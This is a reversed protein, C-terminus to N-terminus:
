AYDDEYPDREPENEPEPARDNLRDVSRPTTKKASKPKSVPKENPSHKTSEKKPNHIAEQKAEYDELKKKCEDLRIQLDHLDEATTKNDSQANELALQADMWATHIRAYKNPISIM